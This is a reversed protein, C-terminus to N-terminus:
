VCSTLPGQDDPFMWNTSGMNYVISLPVNNWWFITFFALMCLASQLHLWCCM